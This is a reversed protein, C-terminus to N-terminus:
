EGLREFSISVTRIRKEESVSWCIIIGLNAISRDVFCSVFVRVEMPEM